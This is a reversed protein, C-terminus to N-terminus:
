LPIRHNKIPLKSILSVTDRKLAPFFDSNRKAVGDVLFSAPTATWRTDLAIEIDDHPSRRSQGRM